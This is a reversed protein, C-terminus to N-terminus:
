KCELASLWLPDSSGGNGRAYVSLLRTGDSWTAGSRASAESITVPKGRAALTNDLLTARVTQRPSAGQTWQLVYGTGAAAVTVESPLGEVALAVPASPEAGYTMSSLWLRLPEGAGRRRAAFALVVTDRNITVSPRPDIDVFGKISHLESTRRGNASMTGIRVVGSPGGARLAVAFGVDATAVSPIDTLTQKPLPWQTEIGSRPHLVSLGAPTRGFAFGESSDVSVADQLAGGTRQASFQPKEGLTLPEVSSLPAGARSQYPTGYPEGQTEVTLGAATNPNLAYAIAVGGDRLSRMRVPVGMFVSAALQKPPSTPACGFPPLQPAPPTTVVPAATPIEVRRARVWYFAGAAGGAIVAAALLAGLRLGQSGNRASVEAPPHPPLSLGVPPRPARPVAPASPTMSPSSPWSEPPPLADRSPIAPLPPSIPRSPPPMGIATVPRAGEEQSPFRKRYPEPPESASHHIETPPEWEDEIPRRKPALTPLQPISSTGAAFPYPPNSQRLLQDVEDRLAPYRDLPPAPPDPNTSPEPRHPMGAHGAPLAWSLEAVHMASVWESWGAKWVLAYSPISESSLGAILEDDTVSSQEGQESVWRWTAPTSM